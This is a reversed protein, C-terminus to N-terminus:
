CISLSWLALFQDWIALELIYSKVVLTHTKGCILSELIIGTFYEQRQFTNTRSDDSPPLFLISSNHLRYKSARSCGAFEWGFNWLTVPLFKERGSKREIQDVSGCGEAEKQEASLNRRSVKLNSPGLDIYLSTFFFFCFVLHGKFTM